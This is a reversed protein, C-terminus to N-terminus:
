ETDLIAPDLDSMSVGFDSLLSELDMSTDVDFFVDLIDFLVDDSLTVTNSTEHANNHVTLQVRFNTGDFIKRCIPCTQKGSQKWNEICHSHFLHGCRLPENLRTERVTNLCIACSTM